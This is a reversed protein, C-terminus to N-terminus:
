RLELEVPGLMQASFARAVLDLDVVVALGAAQGEVQPLGLPPLPLLRRRAGPAALLTDLAPTRLEALALGIAPEGM